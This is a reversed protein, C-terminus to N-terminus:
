SRSARWLKELNYFERDEAHFIHVVVDAYDMLIWRGSSMGEIHDALRKHKAKMELEVENALSKIHTVSTGTAIVFRDALITKGEIDIIEINRAKKDELIQKILQATLESTLAIIGGEQELITGL